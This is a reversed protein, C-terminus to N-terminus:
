PARAADGSESSLSAQEEGTELRLLRADIDALLRDLSKRGITGQQFAQMVQDREAVLLHRRIRFLDRNPLEKSSVALKQLEQETSEIIHRYEERLSDLTEPAALRMRSMQDLEQLAAAAAQVRGSRIEYATSDAPETVIGLWKLVGSMTLGHVLISLVAVGFTMSVVLERYAFTSPLSLALVMPLAGRLGGWTLVISWRWPFRERTLGVLARGAVIVLGRGVTVVLYAVLIPLWYSLLTPLQVEFGILLFVISNLAFAVYEWFTESAVRTSASMGTRAGLNGCLMGAAVTAIVGSAHLTEATVFSGYAAITTLTIEIMPDDIQRMLLSAATGIVTGIVAGVGVITLFQLTLQSATVSTGGLLSLSLTFFVIATGDNLLSEGDLLMTLRRPAGMNRFLGVVAVPDTASILAGFVLADMWGFGPVVGLAAIVPTLIVAILATSAVVGPVALALITIWNDRFERFDIHFAAEFILGPLFVSFLLNKTLQPAPFLELGGLALGALVLAVTYPLHVRRAAIAVATAVVFLLIFATEIDM